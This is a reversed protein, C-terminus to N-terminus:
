PDKLYKEGAEMVSQRARNIQSELEDPGSSGFFAAMGQLGSADRKLVTDGKLRMFSELTRYFLYAQGLSGADNGDIVGAAELRSIAELTNQVLIKSHRRCNTLQLFQVTFELEELGGAGLKIDYGETERSLDRLIRERMQRIDAARVEGGRKILAARAMSMFALGSAKCGSIPRARLLAQLEWFLASQAYYNRFSEVSSVLPGKSGEPRLRTDIRYAVGDKTYATLMRLLREAVRTDSVKVEAGTIFILDLDSGFSIERGGLKGLGIIGVAAAESGISELCLSVVAEAIRSLGRTVDRIGLEQQLFLLGLRIEEAQKIRRIADNISHGESLSARIEHKLTLLSKKPREQWGIMELYQPRSILMKSLYPTQAFVYTLMDILQRDRSFIELYSENMSLLEAFSQLHHLAADPADSKLATDVFVPLIEGLLKRGKLTQFTLVSDRISRLSRVAKGIDRLGTASLHEKLEADSLEEDFFRNEVGPEERKGSFLSDYIGRVLSRRQELESTFTKGNDFGLKRGLIDLDKEASPLTHTQIDNLQQLRHELTRLFGYNDSLAHCDEQGVLAKQMLRHLAKLTSRERLLPERGGYILQLAQTFFEIERIGGYGRKIDGKKFTADIRGKLGRIEDIATFDLYKRYVFPQIMKMFAAFLDPDGAVPRARILMAREWARGWSEYYMEYGRQSLAIAGRQGEPRLRLDVRYVFGDETNLSLFRSLTEGVKCYYEHNTTRNMVTGQATQIGATEGDETGYVYMLDIDSSYNLEGAGLKGLAIVAFADDQPAGYTGSMQQRVMDLSGQIIVDALMSLESLIEVLDAKNLLDRLTITLIEELRFRRVPGRCADLAPFSARDSSSTLGDIKAKLSASLEEKNLPLDMKSLSSFLSEPHAICYNALFQSHSFLVSVPRIEALLEDVRSPNEEVFSLLNKLCREPDPTAAAADILLQETM